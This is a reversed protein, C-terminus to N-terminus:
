SYNYLIKDFEDDTNINDGTGFGEIELFKKQFLRKIKDYDTHLTLLKLLESLLNYLETSKLAPLTIKNITRAMYSALIIKDFNKHIDYYNEIIDAQNIIDFTKGESLIFNNRCFLEIRGSLKSKTKRSGKAISQIKGYDKSYIIVIKDAEGLPTIKTIIGETKYLM